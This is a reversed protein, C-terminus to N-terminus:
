STETNKIATIARTSYQIEIQSSRGRSGVNKRRNIGRFMM